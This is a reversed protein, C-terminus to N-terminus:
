GERDSKASCRRIAVDSAPAVKIGDVCLVRQWPRVARTSPSAVRHSRSATLASKAQALLMNSSATTHRACLNRRLPKVSLLAHM